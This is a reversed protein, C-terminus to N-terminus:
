AVHGALAFHEFPRRILGRKLAMYNTVKVFGSSDSREGYFKGRLAAFLTPRADAILM